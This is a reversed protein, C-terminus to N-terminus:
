SLLDPDRIEDPNLKRIVKAPNGVTLLGPPPIDSPQNM